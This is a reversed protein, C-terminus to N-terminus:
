PATESSLVPRYNVTAAQFSLLVSSLSLFCSMLSEASRYQEWMQLESGQTLMIPSCREAHLQRNRHRSNDIETDAISDAVDSTTVLVKCQRHKVWSKCDQRLPSTVPETLAHSWMFCMHLFCDTNNVLLSFNALSIHNSTVLVNWMDLRFTNCSYLKTSIRLNTSSNEGGAIYKSLSLQWYHFGILGHHNNKGQHLIFKHLINNWINCLLSVM